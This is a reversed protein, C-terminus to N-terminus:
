ESNTWTDFQDISVRRDLADEPVIDVQWMDKIIQNLCITRDTKAGCEM